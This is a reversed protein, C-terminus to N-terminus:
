GQPQNNKYFVGNKVVGVQVGQQTTVQGDNSVIFIRGFLNAIGDKVEVTENMVKVPGTYGGSVGGLMGQYPSQTQTAQSDQSLMGNMETVRERVGM